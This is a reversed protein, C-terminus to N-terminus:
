DLTSTPKAISTVLPDGNEGRTEKAECLAQPVMTFSIRIRAFITEKYFFFNFLKAWFIWNPGVKM